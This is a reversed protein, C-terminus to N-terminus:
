DIYNNFWLELCMLSWLRYSHEAKGNIHEYLMKEVETQKFLNREKFRNSTLLKKIYLKLDNRFWNSVPVVFGMKKRTILEKPLLDKFTEKFIYKTTLGKLKYKSPIKSIFEVLKHDMLPARVELSIAMSAIDVKTMLDDPLYTNLDLYLLKNIVDDNIENFYKNLVNQTNQNEVLYKFNDSYLNNKQSISFDEIMPLYREIDNLPLIQILRHLKNYWNKQNKAVPLIKL